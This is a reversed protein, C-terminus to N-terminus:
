WPTARNEVQLNDAIPQTLWTLPDGKSRASEKLNTVGFHRFLEEVFATYAAPDWVSGRILIEGHFAHGSSTGDFDVAYRYQRAAVDMSSIRVDGPSKSKAHPDAAFDSLSVLDKVISGVIWQQESSYQKNESSTKRAETPDQGHSEHVGALVFM